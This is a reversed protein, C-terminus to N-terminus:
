PSRSSLPVDVVVAPQVSSGATEDGSDDDDHM